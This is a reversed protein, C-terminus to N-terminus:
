RCIAGVEVSGDLIKAKSLKQRVATVKIKGILEEDSGLMEGTDPDVITDGVAYVKLTKGVDLGDKGRNLTVVGTKSNYHAVKIPYIAGLIIGSAAQLARSRASALAGSKSPIGGESEMRTISFSGSAKESALIKATETKVLKLAIEFEAKVTVEDEEVIPIRNRKQQSWASTIRPFLFVSVGAVKGLEQVSAPDVVGELSLMMEQSLRELKEREIVNVKGSKVLQSELELRVSEKLSSSIGSGGEVPMVAISHKGKAFALQSIGILCFITVLAIILHKLNKM